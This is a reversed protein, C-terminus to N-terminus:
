CSGQARSLVTRYQETEAWDTLAKIRMISWPHGQPLTQVTYILKGVVSDRSLDFDEYQALMNETSFNVYPNGGTQGMLRSLGKIANETGGAAITGARDATLESKRQWDYLSYMLGVSILPAFGKFIGTLENGLIAALNHYLVHGSNIHGLEHGIIYLLEEDSADNVFSSHLMVYPENIGTAYANYEYDYKILLKPEKQMNLRGLATEYLDYLRPYTEGTVRFGDGKDQVYMNSKISFDLYVALLKDVVPISKLAALAARDSPHEYDSSKLGSPDYHVM